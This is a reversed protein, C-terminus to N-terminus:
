RFPTRKVIVKGVKFNPRDKLDSFISRDNMIITNDPAFEGMNQKFQEGIWVVGDNMWNIVDKQESDYIIVQVNRLNNELGQKFKLKFSAEGKALMPVDTKGEKVPGVDPVLTVEHNIHVKTKDTLGGLLLKCEFGGCRTGDSGVLDLTYRQGSLQKFLVSADDGRGYKDKVIFFGSDSLEGFPLAQKNFVVKQCFEDDFWYMAHDITIKFDGQYQGQWDRVDKTKSYSVRRKLNMELHWTQPAMCGFLTKKLDNDYSDFDVSWEKGKGKDQIIRYIKQNCRWYFDEVKMHNEISKTLPDDPENLGRSELYKYLKSGAQAASIVGSVYNVSGLIKGAANATGAGAVSFLGQPKISGLASSAAQGSQSLYVEGVSSMGAGLSILDGAIGATTGVPGPVVAAMQCISAIVFPWDVPGLNFRTDYDATYLLFGAGFGGQDAYDRGMEAWAEKIAKVVDKETLRVDDLHLEGKFLREGITIEVPIRCDSSTIIRDFDVGQAELRDIDNTPMQALLPLAALALAICFAIKKM